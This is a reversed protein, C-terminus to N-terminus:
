ETASLDTAGEIGTPLGTLLQQEAGVLLHHTHDAEALDLEVSARFHEIQHHLIALGAADDGPVEDSTLDLAVRGM